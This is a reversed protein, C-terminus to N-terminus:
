RPIGYTNSKIPHNIKSKDIVLKSPCECMTKSNMLTNQPDILGVSLSNKRIVYPLSLEGFCERMNPAEQICADLAKKSLRFISLLSFFSFDSPINSHIWKGDIFDTTIEPISILIADCPNDEHMKFLARWTEQEAAVDSEIFWYFDADINLHKVAAFAMADAKFWCRRDLPIRWDDQIWDKPISVIECRDNPHTEPTVVFLNCGVDALALARLPYDSYDQLIVASKM